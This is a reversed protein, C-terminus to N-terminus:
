PMWLSSCCSLLLPRGTEAAAHDVGNPLDEEETVEKRTNGNRKVMGESEGDRKRKPKPRGEGDGDKPSEEGGSSRVAFKMVKGANFMIMAEM